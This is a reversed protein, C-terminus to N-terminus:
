VPVASKQSKVHAYFAWLLRAAVSRYPRWPEALATLEDPSPREDRGFAHQAGIRLALDGSAFADARGLAFMIYIDATWPGIGTVGTLAAHIEEDSMAAFQDFPLAGERAAKAAARLTRIKPGSLGVSRLTTERVRGIKEPTFPKLRAECREWIARASAVSLQQGVVIRGLGEFGDIQRRLPPDGVANHVARMVQCQRKLGRVAKRVDTEDQILM